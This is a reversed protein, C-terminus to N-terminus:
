DEASQRIRDNVWAMHLGPDLEVTWEPSPWRSGAWEGFWMDDPLDVEHHSRELVIWPRTPDKRTLTFGWRRVFM